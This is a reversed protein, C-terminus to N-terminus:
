RRPPQFVVNVNAVDPRPTVRSELHALGTRRAVLQRRDGAARVQELAEHARSPGTPIQPHQLRRGNRYGPWDLHDLAIWRTDAHQQRMACAQRIREVAALDFGDRPDLCQGGVPAVPHEMLELLCFLTSIGQM